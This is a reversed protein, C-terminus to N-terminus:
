RSLGVGARPVCVEDEGNVHVKVGVGDDADELDEYAPPQAVAAAGGGGGNKKALSDDYSDDGSSSDDSSSIVKAAVAIIACCVPRFSIPSPTDRAVCAARRSGSRQM